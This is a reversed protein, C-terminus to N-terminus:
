QIMGGQAEERDRDTDVPESPGDSGDGSLLLYAVVVVIAAAGVLYVTPVDSLTGAVSAATGAGGDVTGGATGGGDDPRGDGGDHAQGGETETGHQQEYEDPDVMSDSDTTETTGNGANESAEDSGEARERWDSDDGADGGGSDNGTETTANEGNEGAEENGASRERQEEGTDSLAAKVAGWDPHEFGSSNVHARLAAESSGGYECGEAPCPWDAEDDSM